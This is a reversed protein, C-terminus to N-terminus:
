TTYQQKGQATYSAYGLSELIPKFNAPGHAPQGLGDLFYAGIHSVEVGHEQLFAKLAFMAAHDAM